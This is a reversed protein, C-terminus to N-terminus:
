FNNHSVAKKPVRIELRGYNLKATARESDLGEPLDVAHHIWNAKRVTRSPQERMTGGIIFQSRGFPRVSDGKRQIGIEIEDERFGPVAASVVYTDGEWWDEIPVPLQVEREAVFWDQWDDGHSDRKKYLEYARVAILKYMDQAHFDLTAFSVFKISAPPLPAGGLTPHLQNRM